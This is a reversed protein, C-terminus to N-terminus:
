RPGGLRGRALFELVMARVEPHNMIWTHSADVTAFDAMGPLKTEAVTVIGDSPEDHPMVGSARAVWGPPALPSGGRTGAIIAFPASPEPWGAPDPLEQGAPGFYWQFIPNDKFAHALRSGRNPPAIMVIGRWPLLGAMHRAVIGGMSHTVGVIEGDPVDARVRQAVWDALEGISLWLSPYSRSWTPYGARRVAGRLLGMSLHTRGIGHLFVVTPKREAGPSM